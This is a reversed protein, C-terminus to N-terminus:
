MKQIPRRHIVMFSIRLKLIEVKGNTNLFM